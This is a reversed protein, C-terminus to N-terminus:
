EGEPKEICFLSFATRMYMRRGEFVPESQCSPELFHRKVVQFPKERGITFITCWGSDDFYFLHKGAFVLNGYNSKTQVASQAPGYLVDGTEADLVSEVGCGGTRRHYILGDHVV